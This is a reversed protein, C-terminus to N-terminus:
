ITFDDSMLIHCFFIHHIWVYGINLGRRHPSIPDLSGPLLSSPAAIIVSSM